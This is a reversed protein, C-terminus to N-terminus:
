VDENSTNEITFDHLLEEDSRLSHISTAVEKDTDNFTEATFSDPALNPDLARLEDLM